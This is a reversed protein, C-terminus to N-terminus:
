RPEFGDLRNRIWGLGEKIRTRFRIVGIGVAVAPVVMCGGALPCGGCAAGCSSPVLTAVPAFLAALGFALIGMKVKLLPLIM